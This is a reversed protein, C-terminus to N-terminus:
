PWLLLLISSVPIFLMPFIRVLVRPPRPDDPYTIFLFFARRILRALPHQRNLRAAYYPAALLLYLYLAMLATRCWRHCLLQLIGFLLVVFAHFGFRGNVTLACAWCNWLRLHFGRPHTENFYVGPHVTRPSAIPAQEPSYYTPDRAPTPDTDLHPPKPIVRGTYASPVSSALPRFDATASPSSATSATPM